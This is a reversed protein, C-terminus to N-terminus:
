DNCSNATSLESMRKENLFREHNIKFYCEACPYRNEHKDGLDVFGIVDPHNLCQYRNKVM